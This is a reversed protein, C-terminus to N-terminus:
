EAVVLPLVKVGKGAQVLDSHTVLVEAVQGDESSFFSSLASPLPHSSAPASRDSPQAPASRKGGRM